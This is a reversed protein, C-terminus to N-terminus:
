EHFFYQLWRAANSGSSPAGYARVGPRQTEHPPEVVVVNEGPKQLGLKLRAERELADPSGTTGASSALGKNHAAIEASQQELTQIERALARSRLYEGAFGWAVFAVLAVNAALVARMGLLRIFGRHERAM